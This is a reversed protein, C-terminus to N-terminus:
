MRRRKVPAAASIKEKAAKGSQHKLHNSLTNNLILNNVAIRAACPHDETLSMFSKGHRNKATVLNANAKWAKTALHSRVADPLHKVQDIFHFVNNKTYRKDVSRIDIAHEFLNDFLEIWDPDTKKVKPATINYYGGYNKTAHNLVWSILPWDTNPASNSLGDITDNFLMHEVIASTTLLLGRKIFPAVDIEKLVGDPLMNIRQAIAADEKMYQPASIAATGDPCIFHQWHLTCNTCVGNNLALLEKIDGQYIVANRIMVSLLDQKTQQDLGSSAIITGWKEKRTQPYAITNQSLLDLLDPLIDPKHKVVLAFFDPNTDFIKVCFPLSTNQFSSSTTLSCGWNMWQLFLDPLDLAACRVLPYPSHQWGGITNDAPKKVWDRLQKESAQLADTVLIQTM